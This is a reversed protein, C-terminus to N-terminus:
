PALHPPPPHLLSPSPPSPHQPPPPPSSQVLYHVPTNVHSTISCLSSPPLPPHAPPIPLRPAPHCQLYHVCANVCSCQGSPNPPLPPLPLPYACLHPPPPPTPPYLYCEGYKLKTYSLRDVSNVRPRTGSRQGMCDGVDTAFTVANGGGGGMGWGGGGVGKKQHM